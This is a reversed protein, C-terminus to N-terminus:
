KEESNKKPEVDDDSFGLNRLEGANTEPRTAPPQPLAAREVKAKTEQWAQAQTQKPTKQSAEVARARAQEVGAELLNLRAEQPPAPTVQRAPEAPKSQALKPTTELDFPLPEQSVAPKSRAADLAKGFYHPRVGFRRALEAKTGGIALYADIADLYRPLARSLAIASM